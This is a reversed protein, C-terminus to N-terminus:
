AAVALEAATSAATQEAPEEVAEASEAWPKRLLRAMRQADARQAAQISAHRVNRVQRAEIKLRWLRMEHDIDAGMVKLCAYLMLAILGGILVVAEVPLVALMM